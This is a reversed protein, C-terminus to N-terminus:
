LTPPLVAPPCRFIKRHLVARGAARDVKALHCLERNLNALSKLNNAPPITHMGLAPPSVKRNLPHGSADFRLSFHSRPSGSEVRRHPDPLAGYISGAWVVENPAANPRFQPRPRRRWEDGRDHRDLRILARAAPPTARAAAQSKAKPRPAHAPASDVSPAADRDLDVLGHDVAQHRTEQLGAFPLVVGRDARGQRLPQPHRPLVGAARLIASSRRLSRARVAAPM